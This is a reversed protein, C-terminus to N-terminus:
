LVDGKISIGEAQIQRILSNRKEIYHKVVDEQDKIETILFELCDLNEDVKKDLRNLAESFAKDKSAFVNIGDAKDTEIIEYGKVEWMDIGREIELIFCCCDKLIEV